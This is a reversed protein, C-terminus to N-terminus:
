KATILLDDQGSRINMGFNIALMLVDDVEQRDIDLIQLYSGDLQVINGAVTGHIIQIAIEAGTQTPSTM